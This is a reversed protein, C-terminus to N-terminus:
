GLPIFIKMYQWENEQQDHVIKLCIGYADGPFEAGYEGFRKRLVAAMEGNSVYQGAFREYLVFARTRGIHTLGAQKLRSYEQEDSAAFKGIGWAYDVGGGNLYDRSLYVTAKSEPEDEALNIGNMEVEGNDGYELQNTQKRFFFDPIQEIYWQGLREDFDALEKRYGDVKGKIKQLRRIEHDLEASRAEMMQQLRGSDAEKLLVAMDKLSFEMNRYKMCEYIGMCNRVNYSRYNSHEKRSSSLLGIKEYYKITHVSVGTFRSLEGITKENM